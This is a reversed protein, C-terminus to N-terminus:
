QKSRGLGGLSWKGGLGAKAGALGKLVGAKLAGAQVANWLAFALDRSLCERVVHRSCRFPRVLVM